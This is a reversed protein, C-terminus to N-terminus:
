PCLCKHFASKLISLVATLLFCAKYECVGDDPHSCFGDLVKWVRMFCIFYDDSKGTFYWGLSSFM